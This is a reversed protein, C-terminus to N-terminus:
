FASCGWQTLSFIVPRPIPTHFKRRSPPILFVRLFPVCPHAPSLRCLREPSSLQISRFTLSPPIRWASVGSSRFDYQFHLNGAFFFDFSDCHPPFPIGFFDRACCLFFGSSRERVFSRDGAWFLCLVGGDGGPFFGSPESPGCPSSAV